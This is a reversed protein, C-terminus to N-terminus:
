TWTNDEATAADPRDAEEEIIPLGAMALTAKRVAEVAEAMDAEATVAGDQDKNIICIRNLILRARRLRSSFKETYDFRTLYEILVYFVM